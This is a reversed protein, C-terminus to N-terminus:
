FCPLVDSGRKLDGKSTAGDGLLMVADHSGRCGVREGLHFWVLHRRSSEFTREMRTILHRGLSSVAQTEWVGCRRERPRERTDGNGLRSERGRNAETM